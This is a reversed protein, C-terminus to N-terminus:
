VNSHKTGLQCFQKPFIPLHPKTPPTDSPTPQSAQFACALGCQRTREAEKELIFHLSEVAAGAQRDAVLIGAMMM